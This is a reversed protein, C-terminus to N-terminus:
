KLLLAEAASDDTILVNCLKGRLVAKLQELKNSGGIMVVRRDPYDESMVRFHEINLTIFFEWRPVRSKGEQDFLSYSIDGVVGEARLWSDTISLDSLLRLLTGGSAGEEPSPTVPGVSAFIIEVEQMAKWVQKVKSHRKLKENELRISKPTSGKEFPPITVYYASNPLRGSKEWLLSLLVMPDIHEPIFPGRGILATPYLKIQRSKEPLARIMEYVTNGGSIGIKQNPQIIEDFYTAAATGLNNLQYKMDGSTAVVVAERLCEFRKILNEQLTNLRPPRLRFEVLREHEVEKLLRSVQTSSTQLQNAIKTKTFKDVYFLRAVEHLQKLRKDDAM